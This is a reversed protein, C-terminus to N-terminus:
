DSFSVRNLMFVQAGSKMREPLCDINMDCSSQNLPLKVVAEEM